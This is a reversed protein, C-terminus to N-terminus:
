GGAVAPPESMVEINCVAVSLERDGRPEKAARNSRLELEFEGNSKSSLAETVPMSLQLWGYKYLTFACLKVGNLALEIGLPQAALDPAQTTLDLTIATVQDARFRIRGQRGMWRAVPPLVSPQFWGEDFMAESCRDLCLGNKTRGTGPSSFLGRRDRHENRFPGLPADSAKLLVQPFGRPV